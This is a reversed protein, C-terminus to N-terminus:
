NKEFKELRKVKDLLIIWDEQKGLLRISPIGCGGGLSFRFYEKMAFMLFVASVTKDLENTTTFKADFLEM